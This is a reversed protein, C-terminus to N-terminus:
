DICMLICQNTDHSCEAPGWPDAPASDQPLPIALAWSNWGVRFLAIFPPPQGLALSQPLREERHHLTRALPGPRGVGLQFGGLRCAAGRLLRDLRVFVALQEGGPFSGPLTDLFRVPATGM